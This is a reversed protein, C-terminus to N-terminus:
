VKTRGAGAAKLSRAGEPASQTWNEDRRNERAKYTAPTKVNGEADIVAPTDIVPACAHYYVLGREDQDFYVGGCATCKYCTM